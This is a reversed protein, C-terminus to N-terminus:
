RASAWQDLGWLAAGAVGFGALIKITVIINGAFTLKRPAQQGGTEGPKMGKRIIM